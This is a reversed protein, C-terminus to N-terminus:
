IPEIIRLTYITSVYVETNIVSVVTLPVGVEILKVTLDFYKLKYMALVLLLSSRRKDEDSFHPYLLGLICYYVDIAIYLIILDTIIKSAKNVHLPWSSIFTFCNYRFVSTLSIRTATM